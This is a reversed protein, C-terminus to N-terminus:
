LNNNMQSVILDIAAGASPLGGGSAHNFIIPLAGNTVRLYVIYIYNASTVGPAPQAYIGITDAGLVSDVTTNSVTFTPAAIAVATGGNVTIIVQIVDGTSFQNPAITPKLASGGPDTGLQLSGTFGTPNQFINTGSTVGGFIAHLYLISAGDAASGTSLQPKLLEFQYSVWLEGLVVGNAQQGTTALYFTGLDYMEISDTGVDGTRVYLTDLPTQHPACEIFHCGNSWPVIDTAYQENDMQQKNTFPLSSARYQTSMLVSGMANNTSSVASGCTSKFEWVIGLPRYEQYNQAVTALWPFSNSDAPQIPFAFLNTGLALNNNGNTSSIVDMVYEKHTIITSKIKSNEIQPPMVGMGLFSNRKYTDKSHYSGLGMVKPLFKAAM